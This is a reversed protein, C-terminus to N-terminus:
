KGSALVFLRIDREEDRLQARTGAGGVSDRVRYGVPDDATGDIGDPGVSWIVYWDAGAEVSYSGGDTRYPDPLMLSALDLKTYDSFEELEIMQDVITGSIIWEDYGFRQDFGETSRYELYQGMAQSIADVNEEWTVDRTAFIDITALLRNGTREVERISVVFDDDNVNMGVNLKDDYFGFTEV